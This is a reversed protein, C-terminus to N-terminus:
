FKVNYIISCYVRGCPAKGAPGKFVTYGTTSSIDVCVNLKRFPCDVNM